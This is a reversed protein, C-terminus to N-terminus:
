VFLCREFVRESGEALQDGFALHAVDGRGVVGSWAERRRELRRAAAVQGRVDRELGAVVQEIARLVLARELLLALALAQTADRVERQGLAEQRALVAGTSGLPARLSGARGPGIEVLASDLRELREVLDRRRVAR